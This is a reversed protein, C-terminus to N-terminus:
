NIFKNIKLHSPSFEWEILQGAPVPGPSYLICIYGATKWRRWSSPGSTTWTLSCRSCNWWTALRFFHVSCVCLWVLGHMFLAHFSRFAHVHLWIGMEYSLGVWWGTPELVAANIDSKRQLQRAKDALEQLEKLTGVAEQLERLKAAIQALDMSDSFNALKCLSGGSCDLGGRGCINQRQAWDGFVQRTM